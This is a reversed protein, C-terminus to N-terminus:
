ENQKKRPKPPTQEFAALSVGLGQALKVLTGYTPERWGQEFQSVTSLGLGCREAFQDQTLGAQERLEKLRKAFFTRKKPMTADKRVLLTTM